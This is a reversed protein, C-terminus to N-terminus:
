KPLFFLHIPSVIESCSLRHLSVITSTKIKHKQVCLMELLTLVMMLIIVEEKRFRMTLLGGSTNELVPFSTCTERDFFFM